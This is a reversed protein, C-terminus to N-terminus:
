HHMYGIYFKTAIGLKQQFVVFWTAAAKIKRMLINETKLWYQSNELFYAATFSPTPFLYEELM